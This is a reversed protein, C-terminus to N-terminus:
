FNGIIEFEKTKDKKESVNKLFMELEKTLPLQNQNKWFDESYAFKAKFIDKDVSFNSNIKENTFSNTTLLNATFDFITSKIKEDGLLELSADMKANGIYYKNSNKNKWYNVTINYKTTRFKHGKKEQYPISNINDYFDLSFETISYDEKNIQFYGNLRQGNENKAIFNIKRYNNDNSKIEKFDYYERYNLLISSCEKLLNNFNTFEFYAIDDKEKIGTKRMNVVEVAFQFKKNSDKNFMTNRYLKGYIDQLRVIEKNQKLLCRLFFNESYPSLVYNKELNDHAKKIILEANSVIIEDLEISKPEMFITDQVKLKDFTTKIETYGLLSFNIENKASVFVFEGDANTTSNDINNFITVNELPSKNIKDFVIKSIHLNQSQLPINFFIVLINLFFLKM